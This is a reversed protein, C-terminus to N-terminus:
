EDLIEGEVDGIVVGTFNYAVLDCGSFADYLVSLSQLNVSKLSTCNKFADNELVETRNLNIERLNFCNEFAHSSIYKVGNRDNCTVVELNVCDQFARSDIVEVNNLNVQKLNKCLMFASHGIKAIFPPIDVIEADVNKWETLIVYDDTDSWKYTFDDFYYNFDLCIANSELERLKLEADQLESYDSQGLRLRRVSNNIHLM